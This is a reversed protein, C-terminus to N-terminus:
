EVRILKLWQLKNYDKMFDQQEKTLENYYPFEKINKMENVEIVLLKDGWPAEYINNNKYKGYENWVRITIIFLNNNLREILQKHEEEPFSIINM